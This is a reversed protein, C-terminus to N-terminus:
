SIYTYHEAIFNEFPSHTVVVKNNFIARARGMAECFADYARQGLDERV